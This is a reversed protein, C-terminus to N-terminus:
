KFVQWSKGHSDLWMVADCLARRPQYGGMMLKREAGEQREARASDDAALAFQEGKESSTMIDCVCYGKGMSTGSEPFGRM